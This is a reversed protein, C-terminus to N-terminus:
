KVSEPPHEVLSLMWVRTVSRIETAQEWKGKGPRERLASAAAAMRGETYAMFGDSFWQIAEQDEEFQTGQLSGSAMALSLSLASQRLAQWRESTELFLPEVQYSFGEPESHVMGAWAPYGTPVGVTIQRLSPISATDNVHRHGCLYLRTQYRDLLALLEKSGPVAETEEPLLPYHACAIVRENPRTQSLAFEAWSLIDKSIGGTTDSVGHVDYVNLDLMLLVTGGVTRVTYSLSASDVSYAQDYGFSRYIALWEERTLAGSFDHNGPLIYVPTGQDTVSSLFAAVAEHEAKRGNNTNDGLMLMADAQIAHSRMADLVDAFAASNTTLHLDSITMLREASVADVALLLILTLLTFLTKKM